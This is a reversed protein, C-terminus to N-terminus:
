DLVHLRYPSCSVVIHYEYDPPCPWSPSGTYNVSPTQNFAPLCWLTNNDLGVVQCEVDEIM